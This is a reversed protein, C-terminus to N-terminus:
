PAVTVTASTALLGWGNNVFFRADYTGPTMPATFQVTATSLGPSPPSQSGNLYVWSVYSANSNGTRYFGVWDTPNAPGNQITFTVIAGPSVTTANPTITPTPPVDDNVITGVGQADGIPANTAGSLNVTFTENQENATDGLVTVTFTQTTVSPAFTLTGSAAAYDSGASASGNTTAYNVTVTQMPNAPSLTVTFTAQLTGSNGETVVVDNVGLMPGPVVQIPGSTALRTYGDNAFLRLEYTGPTAPAAFVLTAATLGQAPPTTTGNLYFWGANAANHATTAALAVWDRPNGPGNAVTATITGGPFVTAPSATLSPAAAAEDNTITGTGQADGIVANVPQSLNVFFTENQEFTTDGNIAVSITRSTASPDFTLTGSAAVYDSGATASGNSTVYNVSVAQTANVPSLTVTFTAHVTGANGETVSIDNVSLTPGAAVQISGSTALRTYSNNAFLRFHYLGPTTPATFVLTAGTLAQGPLVKAGNLYSWDLSPSNPATTGYLGVWDALNGPGNNVTATITAGPFVTAAGATVAPTGPEDDNVITGAGQADAITANTPQSLNVFFTEAQEFTTDGTIAVSITRTTMSPNFTLTGSTAAYDSSSAATGNATAYHVTVPQSIAPSLSVTFVATSTGSNGEVVSANDITLVPPTLVTTPASTGARAYGNNLFLRFEYNGPAPPAVFSLTAAADGSGPPYTSGNLYMWQYWSADGTGVAYLGVWDSANGPANLVALDIPAGPYVSPTLVNMELPVSPLDFTESAALVTSGGNLMFRVNCLGGPGPVDITVTGSQQGSAPTTTSGDLYRWIMPAQDGTAPCFLGVLDKPNGPGNAVTATITRGALSASITPRDHFCAQVAASVNLRGATRTLGTLSEVPDISFLLADKLEATSMPCASLVLAAAGSVHPAAMSTGSFSSYGNNPVTSLIDQGPAGLHVTAAGFNSFYALEDYNTTAAVAIVNPNDFAAPIMPLYDNNEASNGAAAVFLMDAENAADVQDRLAQSDEELGWSNSLIRVNAEEGFEEKAQIAFEIANIADELTGTDQATIFKLAMLSATWNVGTVGVGNNGAAGITGAVHTGHSHDDMPNCSNTVANFGHTGANCHINLSGITVNFARPATWMNAALDPHNYDIGTDVVGVVHDRSGTTVDWALTASIDAGPIGPFGSIPQGTNFLGWLTNFRPDNPLTSAIRIIFNPEAYLVDPNSKLVALMEATSRRNSRLRRAGRRGLPAGDDSEVTSETLRRELAGVNARYRVLVEGEVVEHGNLRTIRPGQGNRNGQSSVSETAIVAAVVLAAMAVSRLPWRRNDM